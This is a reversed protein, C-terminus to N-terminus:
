NEDAPVWGFIFTEKFNEPNIVRNKKDLAPASKVVVFKWKKEIALVTYISAKEFAAIENVESRGKWANTTIKAPSWYLHFGNKSEKYTSIFNVKKPFFPGKMDQDRGLFYYRITQINHKVLRIRNLNHSANECCPYQHHYLLVEKTNPQLKYALLHGIESYIRKMRNDVPAYIQFRERDDDPNVFGSFVLEPKGDADLDILVYASAYDTYYKDFDANSDYAKSGFHDVLDNDFLMKVLEKKMQDNKTEVSSFDTKSGHIFLAPDVRTMHVIGFANFVLLFFLGTILNKVM